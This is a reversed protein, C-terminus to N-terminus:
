WDCTEHKGGGKARERGAGAGSSEGHGTHVDADDVIGTAFERLTLHSVEDECGWEGRGEEASEPAVRVSEEGRIEGGEGLFSAPEFCAILSDDVLVSVNGDEGTGVVNDVDRSM